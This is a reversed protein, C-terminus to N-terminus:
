QVSTANSLRLLSAHSITTDIVLDLHDAGCEARLREVVAIAEDRRDQVGVVIQVPGPYNPSCFSVLNELLGHEAGHLPKLITVGPMSARPSPSAKRPFRDTLLTACILYSCGIISAFGAIILPWYWIM